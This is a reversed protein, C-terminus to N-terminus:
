GYMRGDRLDITEKQEIFSNIAEIISEAGDKGFATLYTKKEEPNYIMIVVKKEDYHVRLWPSYVQVSNDILKTLNVSEVKEIEMKM